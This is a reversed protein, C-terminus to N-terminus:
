RVRFRLVGPRGRRIVGVELMRPPAVLATFITLVQDPSTLPKGDLAHLTDGNAFGLWALPESASLGDVRFGTTAGQRTAPVIRVGAVLVTPDARLEDFLEATLTVEGDDCAARGIYEGLSDPCPLRPDSGGLGSGLAAVAMAAATAGSDGTLRIEVIDSRQTADTRDEATVIAAIAPWAGGLRDHDLGARWRLYRERLSLLTERDDTTVVLRAVLGDRPDATGRAHVVVGAALTLDAFARVPAPALESWRRRRERGAFFRERGDGPDLGDAWVLDPGRPLLEPCAAGGRGAIAVLAGAEPAWAVVVAPAARAADLVCAPVQAGVLGALTHDLWGGAVRAPEIAVVLEAEAPALELLRGTVDGPGDCGAATLAGVLAAVLAAIGCGRRQRSAVSRSPASVM